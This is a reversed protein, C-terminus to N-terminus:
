EGYIIEMVPGYIKRIIKTESMRLINGETVTLTRTEAGYTAVPRILTKYVQLKTARSIIKSTIIRLNAFFPGSELKYGKKLVIITETTM